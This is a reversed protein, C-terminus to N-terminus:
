EAEKNRLERQKYELTKRLKQLTIEAIKVRHEYTKIEERLLEVEEEETVEERVPVYLPVVHPTGYRGRLTRRRCRIQPITLGYMAGIVRDPLTKHLIASDEEPTYRHKM